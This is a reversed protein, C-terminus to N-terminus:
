NIWLAKNQHEGDGRVRVSVAEELVPNGSSQLTPNSPSRLDPPIQQLQLFPFLCAPHSSLYFPISPKYSRYSIHCHPPFAAVPIRNFNQSCSQLFLPLPSPKYVLREPKRSPTHKNKLPNYIDWPTTRIHCKGSSWQFRHATCTLAM